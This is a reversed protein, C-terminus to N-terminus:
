EVVACQRMSRRACSRHLKGELGQKCTAPCHVQRDAAADCQSGAHHLQVGWVCWPRAPRGLLVKGVVVVQTDIFKWALAHKM